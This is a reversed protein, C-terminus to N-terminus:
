MGIAVVGRYQKDFGVGFATTCSTLYLRPNIAGVAALPAVKYPIREMMRVPFASTGTPVIVFWKTSSTLQNLAVHRLRISRLVNTARNATDPRDVSQIIEDAAM